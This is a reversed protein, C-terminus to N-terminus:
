RPVEQFATLVVDLNALTAAIAQEADGQELATLLDEHACPADPVDADHTMREVLATRLIPLAADFLELLVGNGSLVVIARHFELDIAVFRETDGGVAAARADLKARLEALDADQARTAALRAAEVELGRRVEYVELLRAQRLLRAVDANGSSELVFTGSGHRVELLGDRALLRVAERVSSRGVGLETALASENPLKQGASWHGSRLRNRLAQEVRPVIPEHQIRHPTM